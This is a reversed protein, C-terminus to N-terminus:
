GKLLDKRSYAVFLAMAMLIVPQIMQMTEARMVHTMIAGGMVLALGVAAVPVVKKFNNILLPLSMALVGLMELAGIIKIHMGTFDEAWTVNQAFQEYPLMLKFAAPMGIGITVLVQVIWTVINKTKPSM